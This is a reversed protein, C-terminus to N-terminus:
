KAGGEYVAHGAMNGCDPCEQPIIPAAQSIAIAIEVVGQWQHGCIACELLGQWFHTELADEGTIPRMGDM